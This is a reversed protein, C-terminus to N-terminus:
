TRKNWPLVMIWDLYRAVSDYEQSYGQSSALRVLREVMTKAKDYLEQPLKSTILKEELLKIDEFQASASNM